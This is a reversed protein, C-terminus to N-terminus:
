WSLKLTKLAAFSTDKVIVSFGHDKLQKVVEHVYDSHVPAKCTNVNEPTNKAMSIIVKVACDVQNDSRQKLKNAINM